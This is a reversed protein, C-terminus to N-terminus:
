KCTQVQSTRILPIQTPSSITARATNYPGVLPSHPALRTVSTTSDYTMDQLLVDRGGSRTRPRHISELIAEKFEPIRFTYVATNMFSNSYHLLKIFFVTNISFICTKCFHVLIFILQFPLWSLVFIATICLLTMSLRREVTLDKQDKASNNKQNIKYIISIYAFCAVALSLSLSLIVATYFAERVIRLYFAISIGAVGGALCWTAAICCFYTKRPIMRYKFPISVALLRELSVIALTFVSALGSLIDVTSHIMPLMLSRSWIQPDVLYSIFLPVSVAGVMFDAISLNILFYHTHKRRSKTKMFAAISVTNALMILVAVVGYSTGWLAAEVSSLPAPVRRQPASSNNMNLKAQSRSICAQSAWASSTEEGTM